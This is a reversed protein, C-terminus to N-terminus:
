YVHETLYNDRKNCTDCKTTHASGTPGPELQLEACTGSNM